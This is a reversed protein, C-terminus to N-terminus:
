KYVSLLGCIMSQPRKKNKASALFIKIAYKMYTDRHTMLILVISESLDVYKLTRHDRVEM